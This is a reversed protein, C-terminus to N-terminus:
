ASQMSHSFADLFDADEYAAATLGAPLTADIGAEVLKALTFQTGFGLPDFVSTEAWDM